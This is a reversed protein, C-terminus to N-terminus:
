EIISLHQLKKRLTSRSIGLMRAALSQNGGVHHLVTKLLPREVAEIVIHYLNDPTSKEALLHRLAHTVQDTLAYSQTSAQM